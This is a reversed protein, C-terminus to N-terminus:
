YLFWLDFTFSHYTPAQSLFCLTNHTGNIKDSPVKKCKHKIEIYIIIFVSESYVYKEIDFLM